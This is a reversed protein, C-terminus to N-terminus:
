VIEEELQSLGRRFEDDTPVRKHWSNDEEMYDVGKGKVTNAIIVSPGNNKEAWNISKFIDNFDHGDIETCSLRFAEFKEKLPLIGSVESILGGSQRRNSDVFM